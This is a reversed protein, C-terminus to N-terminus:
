ATKPTLSAIAADLDAWTPAIRLAADRVNLSPGAAGGVWISVRRPLEDLLRRIHKATAKLDAAQTVLLGVADAGHSRASRIIQEAPTDVGLLLPTVQSVALYVQVMELGLGHREDPLTALLVRPAGARDEYASMMVGLQASLCETLVHEHRVELTGDAWLEGVRVCIPHAVDTLFRRPGLALAAQRLGARVSALDHEGLSTLLSAISPVAAAGDTPGQFMARSAGARVPQESTALILQMLQERPKGVVEGPRYGHELARRILKLAEVDSESYLRSGGGTRQPQPFGYRREWM